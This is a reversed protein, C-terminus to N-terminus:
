VLPTCGPDGNDADILRNQQSYTMGSSPDLTQLPAGGVFDVQFCGAPVVVPGISTPVGPQGPVTQSGYIQLQSSATNPDWTPGPAAYSVLSVTVSNSCTAKVTFTVTVLDGQNVNGRMRTVTRDGATGVLMVSYSSIATPGAACTAAQAPPALLLAACIALGVFVVLSAISLTLASRAASPVSM